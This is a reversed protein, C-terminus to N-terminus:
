FPVPLPDDELPLYRLFIMPTNAESIYLSDKTAEIMIATDFRSYLEQVAEAATEARM